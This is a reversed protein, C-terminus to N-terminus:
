RTEVFSLLTQRDTDDLAEFARVAPLAESDPEGHALIAEEVTAARGDHLYAPLFRLGLLPATRWESGGAEGDAIGDDFAAGLEHLLLDSFLEAQQGAIPSVPWDARTPLRPVHCDACGVREFLEEGPAPPRSPIALLRVYDAVRDLSDQDLDVGLRRDDTLGDPNPPETPRLPTTVGMDGQFADAAFADLTALRAKLGFRGVRTQGPSCAPFGRDQAEVVECPVRNARGSVRGLAAQEAELELLTEDAVAEMYGRGFTPPAHRITRLVRPDEPALLPTTADAALYPRETHGWPLLLAELEPDDPVAMRAVTGPGRGDDQHCSACSARIYLPGLGDAERFTAEFLADGDQFRERWDESLGAIAGDSPDEEGLRLGGLPDAACALLLLLM